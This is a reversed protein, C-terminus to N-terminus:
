IKISRERTEEPKPTYRQADQQKSEQHKSTPELVIQWSSACDPLLLTESCRSM